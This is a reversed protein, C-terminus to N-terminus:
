RAALGNSAIPLGSVGPLPTLAGDVHVEFADITGTNGSLAYLYRGDLSLAADIVAGTATGAISELLQLAGNFAISYSSITSSGTNTVFAFRGDNSVVVWCAATQGTSVSPSIVQLVGRKGVSFASLASIDPASGFAESVFMQDRRGFAFGFPTPDPSDQVQPGSSLGLKHVIYTDIHNTAKETVILTRGDPTFSVQAPDTVDASLRRTSRPLPVLQGHPSVIFGTINDREGVQGGANLVYLLNDHSALSIPQLGGSDVAHIMTLGTPRVAFSSIEHSGANVAFLWRNSPDLVVGGQNGLGTGTGRGATPFAGAPTLSGDVARNFVLVSNGDAQNSLTYVAGAPEAGNASIVGLVVTLTLATLAMWTKLKMLMEGKM